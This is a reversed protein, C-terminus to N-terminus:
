LWGFAQAAKAAGVLVAGAMAGWRLGASRGERRAIERATKLERVDGTIATLQSHITAFHRTDSATHEGLRADLNRVDAALAGQAEAIERRADGLALLIDTTTTEAM